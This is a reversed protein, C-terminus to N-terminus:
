TERRGGLRKGCEFTDLSREGFVAAPVPEMFVVRNEEIFKVAAPISKLPFEDPKEFIKSLLLIIQEQLIIQLRVFFIGFGSANIDAANANIMQLLNIAEYSKFMDSRVGDVIVRLAVQIDRTM